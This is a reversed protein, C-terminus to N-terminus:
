FGGAERDSLGVQGGFVSGLGMETVSWPTVRAGKDLQAWVRWM